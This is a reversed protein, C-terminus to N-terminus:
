HTDIRRARHTWWFTTSSRVHCAGGTQWTGRPRRSTWTRSHPVYARLVSRLRTVRGSDPDNAVLRAPLMTQLLALAKGGPATCLDLVHSRPRLDLALVPLLSAGDLPYHNLLDSSPDRRPKPFRSLDESLHFRARLGPSVSFSSLPTKRIPMDADLKLDEFGPDTARYSDLYKLRTTPNMAALLPSTMGISAPIIRASLEYSNLFEEQTIRRM